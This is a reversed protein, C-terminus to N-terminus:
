KERDTQRELVYHSWITKYELNSSMEGEVLAYFSTPGIKEGSYNLKTFSYVMVLLVYRLWLSIYVIPYRKTNSTALIDPPVSTEHNHVFHLRLLSRQDAGPHPSWRLLLRRLLSWRLLLWQDVGGSSTNVEVAITEVTIVEVAIAEVAIVEVAITEVAIMEVTIMSQGWGGLHPSWRLLSWRLLLWRLLLRRLLSQRLLSRRDVGRCKLDKIHLHGWM